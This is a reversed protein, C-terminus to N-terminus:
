TVGRSRGTTRRRRPYFHGKYDKLAARKVEVGAAKLQEAMKDAVSKANGTQSGSLVTVSFPEAQVTSLVTLNQPLNEGAIINANEAKASAYGSIWALQSVTLSPLLQALEPPLPNINQM